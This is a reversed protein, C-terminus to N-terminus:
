RSPKLQVEVGGEFSTEARAVAVFEADIAVMFGPRPAERPFELPTFPRPGRWSPGQLLLLLLLLV